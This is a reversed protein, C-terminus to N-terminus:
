TRSTTTSTRPRTTITSSVPRSTASSRLQCFTLSATLSRIAQAREPQCSGPVVEDGDVETERAVAAGPTRASSSTPNRNMSECAAGGAIPTRFSYFPYTQARVFGLKTALQVSGSQRRLTGRRRSARTRASTARLMQGASFALGRGQVDPRTAVDVEALGDVVAAAYCVAVVRRRRSVPASGTARSTRRRRGSGRPLTSVSSMRRRSSIPRFPGSTTGAPTPPRADTRRANAPSTSDRVNAAGCARPHPDLRARWAPPPSYWLLHSPELM